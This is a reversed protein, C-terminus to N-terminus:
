LMSRMTNLESRNIYPAKPGDDGFLTNGELLVPGQDTVAIDWGIARLPLFARAAKLGLDLVDSFHPMVFGSFEMGTGPHARVERVGLGHEPVQYANFFSGDNPDLIGYVNGSSGDGFNDTVSNTNVLKLGASWIQPTGNRDVITILRVCQATEYGTLEKLKQHCYIREQIIVKNNAPLIRQRLEEGDFVGLDSVEFGRTQREVAVIGDGYDGKAPKLIWHDPLAVKILNSWAEPSEVVTGDPLTGRRNDFVAHVEPIRLGNDKCAAYFLAKDFLIEDSGANFKNLLLRIERYSTYHDFDSWPIRRDLLDLYVQRELEINRRYRLFIYRRLMDTYSSGYVKRATKLTQWIEAIRRWKGQRGPARAVGVTQM